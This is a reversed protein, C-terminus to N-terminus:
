PSDWLRPDRLDKNPEQNYQILQAVRCGDEQGTKWKEAVRNTTYINPDPLQTHRVCPMM